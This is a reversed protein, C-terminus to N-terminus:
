DVRDEFPAQDLWERYIEEQIERHREHGVWSDGHRYLRVSPGATLRALEAHRRPTVAQLRWNEAGDASPVLVAHPSGLRAGLAGRVRLSDLAPVRVEEAGDLWRPRRERDLRRCDLHYVSRCRTWFRRQLNHAANLDADVREPAGERITYLHRHSTFGGNPPWCLGFEDTQADVQSTHRPDVEVVHIGHPALAERIRSVIARHPWLTLLVNEKRERALTMRYSSLDELLVVHVGRALAEVRVRAAIKKLVDAKLNALYDVMHSFDRADRREGPGLPPRRRYHWSRVLRLYDWVAFPWLIHESALGHQRAPHRRLVRFRREVEAVLGFVLPYLTAPEHAPEVELRACSEEVWRTDRPERGADLQRLYSVLRRVHRVTAVFDQVAVLFSLDGEDGLHYSNHTDVGGCFSRHVMANPQFEYLTCGMLPRLGLDVALTRMGPRVEPEYKSADTGTASQFFACARILPGYDPTPEGGATRAPREAAFLPDAFGCPVNVALMVYAAGIGGALFADRTSRELFHRDFRLSCEKITGEVRRREANGTTYAIRYVDSQAADDRVVEVDRFYGSRVAECEHIRTRSPDAHDVLTLRFLFRDRRCSLEFRLYNHGFSAWVPSLFADPLAFAAGDRLRGLREELLVLQGLEHLYDRGAANDWLASLPGGPLLPEFIRPDHRPDPGEGSRFHALRGRWRALFRGDLRFDFQGAHDLWARFLSQESDLSDHGIEARYQTIEEACASRLSEQRRCAEGWSKVRAVASAWASHWATMALHDEELIPLVSREHLERGIRKGEDIGKETRCRLGARCERKVLFSLYGRPFATALAAEYFGRLEEVTRASTIRGALPACLRGTEEATLTSENGGDRLRCPERRAALLFGSLERSSENILIHTAALDKVFIPDDARLKVASSRVVSARLAIDSKTTPKTKSVAVSM